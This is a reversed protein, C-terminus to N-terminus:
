KRAKRLVGALTTRSKSGIDPMYRREAVPRQARRQLRRATRTRHASAAVCM